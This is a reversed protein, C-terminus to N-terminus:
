ILSNASSRTNNLSSDHRSSLDTNFEVRQLMCYFGVSINKVLGHFFFYIFLALVLFRLLRSIPFTFFYSCTCLKIESSASSFFRAANSLANERM